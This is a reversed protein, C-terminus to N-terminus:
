SSEKAGDRPMDVSVRTGAGPASSVNVLGGILRAREHMGFLGMGRNKPDAELIGEVDFGQGNDTVEATIHQADEAVRVGIRTANSHKIINTLSEQIIRFLTTEVEDTLRDMHEPLQLEVAFGLPKIKKNVYWRLAPILGLDDLVTPRLDHMLRHIEDLTHDALEHITVLRDRADEVQDAPIGGKPLQAILQEVLIVMTALSQGSEDHLERSIRRREEELAQLVQSSVHQRHETLRDLMLNFTEALERLDPDGTIRSARARFDGSQIAEITLRLQFLPDFALKLLLYNALVSIYIGVVVFVVHLSFDYGPRAALALTLWTGLVAGIVLIAANTCLVKHFLTTSDHLRRVYGILNKM